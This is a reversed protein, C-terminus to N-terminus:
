SACAELLTDALVIEAMEAAVRRLTARHSQDKLLVELADGVRDRGLALQLAPATGLLLREDAAVVIRDLREGIAPGLPRLRTTGKSVGRRPASLALLASLASEDVTISDDM